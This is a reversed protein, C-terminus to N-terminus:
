KRVRPDSARTGRAAGVAGTAPADADLRGEFDDLCRKLGMALEGVCPEFLMSYHNGPVSHIELGGPAYPSWDFLTEVAQREPRALEACNFFVIRDACLEPGLRYETSRHSSAVLADKYRDFLSQFEEFPMSPHVAEAAVAKTWISEVQEEINLALLEEVSYNLARGTRAELLDAFWAVLTSGDRAPGCMVDVLGLVAVRGGSSGLQRAMEYAVVGGMSWGALCHPGDPRLRLLEGICLSAAQEITTEAVVEGQDFHGGYLGHPQLVYLPQDHDLHAAFAVYSSIDIGGPHVFFLPSRAGRERAALLTLVPAGKGDRKLDIRTTEESSRSGDLASLVDDVLHTLAYDPQVSRIELATSLDAEIRYKLEMAMLSDIGVSQLPEHM